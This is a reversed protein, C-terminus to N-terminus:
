FINLKDITNWLSNTRDNLRNAVDTRLDAIDKVIEKKITENQAALKKFESELSMLQGDHEEEIADQQEKLNAITNTMSSIQNNTSQRFSQSRHIEETVYNCIRVHEYFIVVIIIVAILMFALCTWFVITIPISM